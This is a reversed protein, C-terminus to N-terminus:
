HPNTAPRVTSRELVGPEDWLGEPRVILYPDSNMTIPDHHQEIRGWMEVYEHDSYTLTQNKQLPEFGFHEWFPVLRKQAQGYGRVYGKRSCFRQGFQVIERAILTRRFRDLVALREFKVFDAFYRIRLTAAPEGDVFGLLHTCSFDNGDFEEDYPCRQQHIFISRIANVKAMDDASAVVVIKLRSLMRQMRDIHAPAPAKSKEPYRDLMFLGGLRDDDGTVPRYDLNRLKNLGAQTGATAYIPLGKHLYEMAKSITPGAIATLHEAVIAWIYVAAPREGAKALLDLDPEVANLAHDRLARHGEDNLLLFSYFGALTPVQDLTDSRFIGWFADPNNTLVRGIAHRSAVTANLRSATLAVCPELDSERLRRVSITDNVKIYAFQSAPYQAPFGECVSVTTLYADGDAQEM